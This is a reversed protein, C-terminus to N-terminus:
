APGAPATPPFRVVLVTRDDQPPADGCYAEVDALLAEGIEKAPRARLSRALAILREVGYEAAVDGEAAGAPM